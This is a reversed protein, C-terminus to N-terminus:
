WSCLQTQPTSSERYSNNVTYKHLWQLTCKLSMARIIKSWSTFIFQVLYLVEQVAFLMTLQKNWYLQKHFVINSLYKTWVICCCHSLSAPCRSTVDCREIHFNTTFIYSWHFCVLLVQCSMLVLLVPRILEHVKSM